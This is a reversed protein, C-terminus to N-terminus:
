LKSTSKNWMNVGRYRGPTKTSRKLLNQDQHYKDNDLIQEENAFEHQYDIIKKQKQKQESLTQIARSDTLIPVPSDFDFEPLRKDDQKKMRDHEFRGEYSIRLLENWDDFNLSVQKNELASRVKEKITIPLSDIPIKVIDVEDNFNLDVDQILNLYEKAKTAFLKMPINGNTTQVDMIVVPVDENNYESVVGKLSLLRIQEDRELTQLEVYPTDILNDDHDFVADGNVKKNLKRSFAQSSHEDQYQKLLFDYDSIYQRLFDDAAENLEVNKKSQKHRGRRLIYEYNYIFPKTEKPSYNVIKAYNEKNRARTDQEIDKAYVPVDGTFEEHVLKLDIDNTKSRNQITKQSNGYVNEQVNQSDGYIDEHIPAPVAQEGIRGLGFQAPGHKRFAFLAEEQRKNREKIAPSDRLEQATRIRDGESMIQREETFSMRELREDTIVPSGKGIVGRPLYQPGHPLTINEVRKKDLENIMHNGLVNQANLGYQNRIDYLAIDVRRDFPQKEYKTQWTKQPHGALNIEIATHNLKDDLHPNLRFTHKNTMNKYPNIEDAQTQYRANELDFKNNFGEM